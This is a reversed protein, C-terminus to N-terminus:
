RHKDYVLSFQGVEFHKKGLNRNNCSNTSDLAASPIQLGNFQPAHEKVCKLILVLHENSVSYYVQRSQKRAKVLGGRRLLALQQSVSHQPQHLKKCLTSVSCENEFLEICISLRLPHSLSHFIDAASNIFADYIERNKEHAGM